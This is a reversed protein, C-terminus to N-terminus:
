TLAKIGEVMLYALHPAVIEHYRLNKVKQGGEFSFRSDSVRGDQDCTLSKSVSKIAL